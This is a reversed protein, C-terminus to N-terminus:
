RDDSNLLARRSAERRVRSWGAACAVLSSTAVLSIGMRRVLPATVAPDSRQVSPKGVILRPLAAADVEVQAIAVELASLEMEMGERQGSTLLAERRKQLVLIQGRKSDMWQKEFDEGWESAIGSLDLIAQPPGDGDSDSVSVVVVTKIPEAKSGLGRQLFESSAQIGLESRERCSALLRNMLEDLPQPKSKWQIVVTWMWARAAVSPSLVFWVSVMAVWLALLRWRLRYLAVAVSMLDWDSASPHERDAVIILPQIPTDSSPRAM